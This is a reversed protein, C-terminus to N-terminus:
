EAIGEVNELVWDVCATLASALAFAGEDDVEVEGAASAHARVRSLVM